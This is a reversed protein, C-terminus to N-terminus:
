FSDGGVARWKRGDRALLEDSSAPGWTGAAYNPFRRPPLANWVDMIPEVLSWSAEVSDAHKFLTADGNMCDYILTEYGTAPADGFYDSYSFNMRVKGLRMSPGPVKAGFSFEIGENPQLRLTLTNSRLHDIPTKAFMQVPARKYRIAIESYQAPLRKGTRLYFPVGAWRWNDLMLKLAVFTETRSEPDVGPSSRYAPIPRGDAGRGDGYQGRVANSLVEEANMPQISRMVKLGEDRVAKAAFSTPPEMALFQLLVFLHNPIMDRLAGAQDYYDGRHEVGVSEAVTIQVHDIYRHNWMPESFGNAFRFVMINQVTEKGLYHDIRFIQHEGFSEHLDRNLARASALDNGFPKEIIVRRWTDESERALGADALHRTIERFFRPPTALYFLYNGPTGLQQDITALYDGLAVYTDHDAFDGQRYFIRQALTEWARPDFEGPFFQAVESSIDERFAESTLERRDVVVVGLNESLLGSTTLHFLAPILKRRTLDGGGGFIVMVCAPAPGAQLQESEDQHM